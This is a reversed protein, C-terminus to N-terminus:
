KRLFQYCFSAPFPDNNFGEKPFHWHGVASCRYVPIIIIYESLDLVDGVQVFPAPNSLPLQTESKGTLKLYLDRILFFTRIARRAREMQKLCHYIVVATLHDM